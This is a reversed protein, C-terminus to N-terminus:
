EYFSQLVALEKNSAMILLNDEEEIVYNASPFIVTDGRKVCVVNVNAKPYQVLSSKKFKKGTLFTTMTVTSVRGIYM